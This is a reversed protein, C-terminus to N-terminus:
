DGTSKKGMGTSPPAESKHLIVLASVAARIVRHKTFRVYREFYAWGLLAVTGAVVTQQWRPVIYLWKSLQISTGTICLRVVFTIAVFFFAICTGRYFGERYTLMERDGTRGKQVVVEDLVRHVSKANLEKLPIGTIESAAERGRIRLWEIGEDKDKENQNMQLAANEVFRLLGNGLAQVAHGLLYSAIITATWFGLGPRFTAVSLPMSPVFLAWYLAVFGVLCVSGPLMYGFLEYLTFPLKSFM